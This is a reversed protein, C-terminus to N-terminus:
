PIVDAIQMGWRSTLAKSLALSARVWAACVRDGALPLRLPAGASCPKHTFRDDFFLGRRQDETSPITSM